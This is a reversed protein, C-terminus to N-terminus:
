LYWNYNIYETQSCPGELIIKEESELQKSFLLLNEVANLPSWTENITKYGNRIIKHLLEPDGQLHTIINILEDLNGYKYIMGNKNPQILFPAAGIENTTVLACGNALAENCVAGWGEEKNSSFILVHAKRMKELVTQNPVNATFTYYEQLRLQKINEKLKGELPGVGVFEIEFKINQKRLENGLAILIEPNKLPILRGVFLIKFIDKAKNELISQLDLPKVATFYGWKIKKNPFAM